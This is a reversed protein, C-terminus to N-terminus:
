CGQFFTSTVTGGVISGVISPVAKALLAVVIAVAAYLLDKSAESVKGEDGGARLYKFAALIVFFITLFILIAFLFNIITCGLAFVGSITTIGLSQASALLPMIVSAVTAGISIKSILDKKM